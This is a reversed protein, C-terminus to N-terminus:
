YQSRVHTCRGSKKFAGVQVRYITKETGRYTWVYCDIEQNKLEQAMLEAPKRQVFSGLVVRYLAHPSVSNNSDPHMPPVIASEQKPEPTSIVLAVPTSKASIKEQVIERPKPKSPVKAPLVVETKVNATSQPSIILRKGIRVVLVVSLAIVGLVSVLVVITKVWSFEKREKERLLDGLGDNYEFDEEINSEEDKLM